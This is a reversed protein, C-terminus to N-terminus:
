APEHQWIGGERRENTTDLDSVELVKLDYCPILVLQGASDGPTIIMTIDTPNFVRVLIEKRYYHDIVGALVIFSDRGRPRIVGGFGKPFKVAIGTHILGVSKAPIALTEASFLDIGLDGSDPTEPVKAEQSLKKIELVM